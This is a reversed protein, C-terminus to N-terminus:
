SMDARIMEAAAQRVNEMTQRESAGPTVVVEGRQHSAPVPAPAANKEAIYRARDHQIISQYAKHAEKLDQGHYYALSYIANRDAEDYSPNAQMIEHEDRTYQAIIEQEQVRQAAAAERADITQVMQEMRRYANAIEPPLDALDVGEPITEANGAEVPPVVETVPQQGGLATNLQDAVQRAFQPDTDLRQYFEAIQQIKETGGYQETLKRFEAAEQLKPTAMSQYNRIAAEAAARATPDLSSLDPAPLNDWSQEVVPAAEPAQTPEPIPAVPAQEVPAEFIPNETLAEAAGSAIDGFPNEPM